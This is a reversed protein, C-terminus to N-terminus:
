ESTGFFRRQPAALGWRGELTALVHEDQAILPLLDVMPTM